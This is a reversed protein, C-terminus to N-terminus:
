YVTYSSTYLGLTPILRARSSQSKNAAMAQAEPADTKNDGVGGFKFSNNDDKGTSTAPLTKPRKARKRVMTDWEEDIGDKNIDDSVERVNKKKKSKTSHSPSFLTVVFSRVCRKKQSGNTIEAVKRKHAAMSGLAPETERLHEVDKCTKRAQKKKRTTDV